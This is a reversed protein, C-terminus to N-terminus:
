NEEYYRHKQEDLPDYAGRGQPLDLGLLSLAHELAGRLLNIETDNIDGFAADQALQVDKMLEDLRTQVETGWTWQMRGDDDTSGSSGVVYPGPKFLASM